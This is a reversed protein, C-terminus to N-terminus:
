PRRHLFELVGKRFSLDGVARNHDRGPIELVQAGPIADALPKPDGAVDDKTGVAVLVPCRLRGLMDQTFATRPSRMVAALAPLDSQTREAFTRFMRAYADQVEDATPAELAAIIDESRSAGAFMNGGMGGVVLSRVREPKELAMLVGVRAGMSYGIVDVKPIGLVDLLAFADSAMAQNTYREPDYLKTSGGHGRHDFAIVRRGDDVLSQVWGTSQWNMEMNSAFGHVLLVPDGTGEDSYAIEVDGNRFRESM